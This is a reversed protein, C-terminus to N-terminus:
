PRDPHTSISAEWALKVSLLQRVSIYISGGFFFVCRLHPRAGREPEPISAQDLYNLTGVDHVNDSLILRSRQLECNNQISWLKLQGPCVTGILTHTKDVAIGTIERDHAQVM